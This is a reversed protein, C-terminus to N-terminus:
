PNPSSATAAVGPTVRKPYWLNAKSWEDRARQMSMPHGCEPCQVMHEGIPYLCAVCVAGDHEFLARQAFRVKLSRWAAAVFLLFAGSCGTILLWKGSMVMRGFFLWLTFCVLAVYNVAQARALCVIRGPAPEPYEDIALWGLKKRCGRCRRSREFNTAGCAGCACLREAAGFRYALWVYGALAFGVALVATLGFAPKPELLFLSGIAVIAGFVLYHVYRDIPKHMIGSQKM